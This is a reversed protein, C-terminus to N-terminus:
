HLIKFILEKLLDGESLSVNDVGKAKLDYERLLSFIKIIKEHSFNRSAAIYDNIFFPSVGLEATANKESKNALQHYIILKQFFNFLVAITQFISHEKSNDGFYNIIQNAKGINKQGLAKQLELVNFDKSIGTNQEILEPTIASGSPLNIILKTLENVIRHLDNGISEALLRVAEPTISYNREKLYNTIWNPIHSDYLKVSDFLVGKKEILKILSKRKDAKKYKYCFVLISSQLPNEVYSELLSKTKEKKDQTEGSGDEKSSPFLNRIEQAEKVIVLSYNAMMPFRKAQSVITAIDTDRGYLITQNFEREINNLVTTEIKDCIFDIFYSEEGALFYVPYYIRKNLDSIIQDFTM